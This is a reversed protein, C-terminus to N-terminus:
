CRPLDLSIFGTRSCSGRAHRLVPWRWDPPRAPACREVLLESFAGSGCGIDVWRLGPRPALWDLFVDGVLRSWTGMMREYAAGDEFRIQHQAM